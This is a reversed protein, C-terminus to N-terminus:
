IFTNDIERKGMRRRERGGDMGPERGSGERGGERAGAERGGARGGERAGAERGNGEQVGERNTPIKRRRETPAHLKKENWTKRNKHKERYEKM